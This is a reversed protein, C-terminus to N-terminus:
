LGIRFFCRRNRFQAHSKSLSLVNRMHTQIYTHSRINTILSSTGKLLTKTDNRVYSTRRKPLASQKDNCHPNLLKGIEIRNSEQLQKLADLQPMSSQIQEIANRGTANLLTANFLTADRAASVNTRHLQGSTRQFRRSSSNESAMTSGVTAGRLLTQAPRSQPKPNEWVGKRKILSCM